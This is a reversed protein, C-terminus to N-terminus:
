RRQAEQSRVEEPNTLCREEETMDALLWSTLFSLKAALTPLEPHTCAEGHLTALMGRHQRHEELLRDARETGAQSDSRLFPLLAKEEFTLHVEMMSRLDGITSAVADPSVSAGDLALEAITRAKALFGRIKAHQWFIARRATGIDLRHTPASWGLGIM